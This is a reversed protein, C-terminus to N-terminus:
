KPLVSLHRNKLAEPFTEEEWIKIFITFYNLQYAMLEMFAGYFQLEDIKEFNYNWCWCAQSSSPPTQDHLCESWKWRRVIYILDIKLFHRSSVLWYLDLVFWWLLARDLSRGSTLMLLWLANCFVCAHFDAAAHIWHSYKPLHSLHSESTWDLCLRFNWIM